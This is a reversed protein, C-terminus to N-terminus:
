WLLFTSTQFYKKYSKESKKKFGKDVRVTINKTNASSEGEFMAYKQPQLSSVQIVENETIGLEFFTTSRAVTEGSVFLKKYIQITLINFLLYKKSCSSNLNKM